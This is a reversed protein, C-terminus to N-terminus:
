TNSLNFPMVSSDVSDFLGEDDSLNDVKGSAFDQGSFLKFSVFLFPFIIFTGYAIDCM